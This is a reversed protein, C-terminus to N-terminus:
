VSDSGARRWVAFHLATLRGGRSRANVDAGADLLARIDGPKGASVARHLTTLGSADRADLDAGADILAEVEASVPECEAVQPGPKFPTWGSSGASFARVLSEAGAARLAAAVPAYGCDFRGRSLVDALLTSYSYNSGGWDRITGTASKVDAGAQILADMAALNQTMAAAYLPRGLLDGSSYLTTKAGAALLTNVIEAADPSSNAAALYLTTTPFRDTANVDAGAAILAEIVAPNGNYQAALRLLTRDSHDRSNVDAGAAILAEIVAPNGNYQAALQLSRVYSEASVITSTSLAAIMAPDENYQAAYHLPYHINRDGIRDPVEAFAPNIARLRAVRSANAFRGAQRVAPELGSASIEGRRARELADPAFWAEIVDLEAGGALLAEFADLSSAWLLPTRGGYGDHRANPDLGAALLAEVIAADGLSAAIHLATWGSDSRARIDAGGARLAEFADPSGAWFLPTWGGFLPIWSDDHRANPDLGAALLAEVIAADGLFAALFAARHLATWGSDSRARIDAGGARLAKFADPSGALLLPTRGDDARANPDLGAALLLEITGPARSAWGSAAFHLATWGNWSGSNVLRANVDEASLYALLRELQVPNLHGRPHSLSGSQLAEHLPTWGQALRQLATGGLSLAKANRQYIDEPWAGNPLLRSQPIINNPFPCDCAPDIVPEGLRSFDGIRYDTPRDDVSPLLYGLDIGHSSIADRGICTYCYFHDLAPLVQAAATAALALALATAVLFAGPVRAPADCALQRSSLGLPPPITCTRRRM